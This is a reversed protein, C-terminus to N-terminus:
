TAAEKPATKPSLKQYHQLFVVPDLKFKSQLKSVVEPEGEFVFNVYYASDIHRPTYPLQRKDMKQVQQVRAGEKTFDQELREILEKVTDEQGRTDLAMLCEYSKIM